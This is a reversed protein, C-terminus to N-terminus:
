SNVDRILKQVRRGSVLSSLAGNEVYLEKSTGKAGWIKRVTEESKGNKREMAALRGRAQAAVDNQDAFEKILHQYHKLAEQKGLKEYCMGIHLLAKAVVPRDDPFKVVIREYIKIAEDPDGKVEEQYLGSQLLQGARPQAYGSLAIVLTLALVVGLLSQRRM